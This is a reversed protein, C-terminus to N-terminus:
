KQTKDATALKENRRIRYKRGLNKIFYPNKKMLFLIVTGGSVSVAVIVLWVIDNGTGAKGNDDLGDAANAAAYGRSASQEEVQLNTFSLEKIKEVTKMTNALRNNIEIKSEIASIVDPTAMGTPEKEVDIQFQKVAAETVEDFVASAEEEFYGLARLKEQLDKVDSGVYGLKLCDFEPAKTASDEFLAKVEEKSLKGTAKLGSATQYAKVAIETAEDFTDTAEDFMYRLEILRNRLETVCPGVIGRKMTGAEPNVPADKEYLAKRMDGDSQGTVELGAAAQFDSVALATDNNYYTTPEDYFYSLEKLRAELKLIEDDASGVTFVPEYKPADSAYLADLTKKDAIGTVQLGADEQFLKLKEGTYKGFYTTLEADYYGLETLRTKMKLVESSTTGVKLVTEAPKSVQPKTTPKSSSGSSGSSATSSYTVDQYESDSPPNGRLVGDAGFTYTKGKINKTVSVVYQGNEYYFTQGNIKVFGTDPYSVGAIKFWNTWHYSSVSQYMVNYRYNRADVAMGGGVYVGVHGPSFLGLGHIRPLTSIPGKQPSAGMLNTRQGGVHNYSYILGSCDVAGASSGGYVYKWKQYYATLAHATMGPGTSSAASVESTRGLGAPILLTLVMLLALLGRIKRNM